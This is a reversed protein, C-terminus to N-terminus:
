INNELSCLSRLASAMAHGNRGVRLQVLCVKILRGWFAPQDNESIKEEGGNLFHGKSDINVRYINCPGKLELAEKIKSRSVQSPTWNPFRSQPYGRWCDDGCSTHPCPPPVPVTLASPALRHADLELPSVYEFFSRGM